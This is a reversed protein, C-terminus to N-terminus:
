ISRDDEENLDITGNTLKLLLVPLMLSKGYDNRRGLKPVDEKKGEGM